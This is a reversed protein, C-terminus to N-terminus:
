RTISAGHYFLDGLGITFALVGYLSHEVSAVLLSRTRQFRRAFLWGGALTLLVSWFSGLIIHAFGFAVASAAAAAWGTGFVPAYRHLLFARFLLEQPYVSLLPYFIVVALWIWPSERPLDFLHDPRIVAVAGIGVVAAAAWTLLVPRLAPRLAERRWLDRRDFDPQRRLWWLALGGFVLLVPIPSGPSGLLAYGGVAVFFLAGFEVGRALPPHRM